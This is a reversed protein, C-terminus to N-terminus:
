TKAVDVVWERAEAMEDSEGMWPRGLWLKLKHQGPTLAEFTLTRTHAGGVVLSGLDVPATPVPPSPVFKKEVIARSSNASLSWVFGASANERLDLSFPHGVVVSLNPM